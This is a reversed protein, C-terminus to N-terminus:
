RRRRPTCSRGRRRPSRGGVPVGAAVLDDATFWDAEGARDGTSSWSDFHAGVCSADDGLYPRGYYRTLAAVAATDSDTALTTPLRLTM